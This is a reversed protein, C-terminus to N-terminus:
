RADLNRRLDDLSEFHTPPLGLSEQYYHFKQGDEELVKLSQNLANLEALATDM